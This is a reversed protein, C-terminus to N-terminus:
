GTTTSLEQAAIAQLACSLGPFPSLPGEFPAAKVLIPQGVSTLRLLALEKRLQKQWIRAERGDRSAGHSRSLDGSLMQASTGHWPRQSPASGLM